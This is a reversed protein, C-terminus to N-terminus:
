FSVLQWDKLLFLTLVLNFSFNVNKRFTRLYHLLFAQFLTALSKRFIKHWHQGHLNEQLYRSWRAVLAGFILVKTIVQGKSSKLHWTILLEKLHPAYSRLTRIPSSKLKRLQALIQLKSWKIKELLSIPANSIGISSLNKTYTILARYFKNASDLLKLKMWPDMKWCIIRSVAM